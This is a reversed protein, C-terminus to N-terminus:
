NIPPGNLTLMDGLPAPSQPLALSIGNISSCNKKKSKIFKSRTVTKITQFYFFIYLIYLKKVCMILCKVTFTAADSLHSIEM